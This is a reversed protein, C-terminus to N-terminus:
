ESYENMNIYTLTQKARTTIVYALNKEQQLAEPTTAHKSPVRWSDLHYVNDWELGKARHGTALTIDGYDANLLEIISARIEFSDRGPACSLVELVDENFELREPPLDKMYDSMKEILTNAPIAQKKDILDIVSIIRKSVDRGIFKIPRRAAMAIFAVKFLPANNRCLIAAGKPIHNINWSDIHHVAGTIANDAWKMHPVYHQAEAVVSRSCRFCTTLGKTESSFMKTINSMSATDAGRFAYISQNPDGVAILQGRNGTVKKVMIHNMPNWDQVEDGLVLDATQYNGGFCTAMYIQDAFDITGKYAEDISIKLAVRAADVLKQALEEDTEIQAALLVETWSEPSDEALKVKAKGKYPEPIIGKIRATDLMSKISSKDVSFTEGVIGCIRAAKRQDLTLKKALFKGFAAHGIGNLTKVNWSEPLAEILSDKISVNFALATGSRPIRYALSKLTFTKGSGALAEVTLSQRSNTVHDFIALQEDTFQTM